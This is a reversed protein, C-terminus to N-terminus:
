TRLGRLRWGDKVLLVFQCININLPIKECHLKVMAINLKFFM